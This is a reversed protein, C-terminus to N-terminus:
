MIKGEGEGEDSASTNLIKSEDEGRSDVFDDGLSGECVCGVEATSKSAIDQELSFVKLGDEAELQAACVVLHSM